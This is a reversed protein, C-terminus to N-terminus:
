DFIVSSVHDVNTLIVNLHGNEYGSLRTPDCTGDGLESVDGSDGVEVCGLGWVKCGSWTM